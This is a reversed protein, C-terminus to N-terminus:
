GGSYNGINYLKLKNYLTKLSIGLSEAADKKNGAKENLVAEIHGREVDPLSMSTSLRRGQIRCDNTLINDPIDDITIVNGESLVAVREITNELQRVNGPWDYGVLAEMAAAEISKDCGKSSNKELFYEILEPIDDRRERLLPVHIEVVNIRFFLDERFNGEAVEDVLNKNTAAVIRANVLVNKNDGVRRIEGSQLVRLLKAQMNIPMEGIEDLFLTGEDAVEFLGTRAQNAGTFAGRAHGFLESELLAEPLAACNIVVFSKSRRDSKDHISKAVLEKGTGSEGQVLVPCDKRSVKDIMTFIKKMPESVGLFSVPPSLRNVMCKLSKNEKALLRKEYAKKLLLDLDRLKCPKTIYNYAGLKMSEVASEVSGEGTLMLVEITMDMGKLKSLVAEGGLVPMNVDLIAIDFDKEAAAQVAKEGNDVATVVYGKRTLEKAMITRFTDEDDALLVKIKKGM